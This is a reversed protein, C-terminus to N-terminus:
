FGIAQTSMLSEIESDPMGLLERCIDVTHEGLLASRQSLPQTGSLRVPNGPYWQRGATPHDLEIYGKRFQLHADALHDRANQVYGAPVGAAQLLEMAGEATQQSAWAAIGPDLEDQSALRGALTTFRPDAKWDDRGLVDCLAYWQSDDLIAIVCWRDDGRCQYAGHPAAYTVRNGQPQPDRGNMSWELYKEGMLAAGAEAQSLDIFQGEGTRRRHDLAALVGMLGIKGAIHDPHPLPAGVPFEDDPHGWLYVLGFHPALNPGFAAFDENPGGRGFGNASIYVIDPKFGRVSEYDLGWSRAVYARNNEAVVDSTAILRRVIDPGEESRLNVAFSRENRNAENFGPSHNLDPEGEMNRGNRRMFDPYVASEVKIVDAGFEGMIRCLEPIVAGQGLNVVRIGELPLTM